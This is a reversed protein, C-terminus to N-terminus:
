WYESLVNELIAFGSGNCCNSNCSKCPATIGNPRNDLFEKISNPLLM